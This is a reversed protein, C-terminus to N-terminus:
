LSLVGQKTYDYIGVGLEEMRQQTGKIDFEWPRLNEYDEDKLVKSKAIPRPEVTM